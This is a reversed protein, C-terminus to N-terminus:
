DIFPDVDDEKLKTNKAERIKKDAVKEYSRKVLSGSAKNIEDGSAVSEIVGIGLMGLARGVASTEAVELAATKTIFSDGVTAQSHGTFYRFLAGEGKEDLIDNPVGVKAKMVIKDSGPDSLLYTEIMGKPHLEHFAIIRDKVMVYEKGKIDVTPLKKTM